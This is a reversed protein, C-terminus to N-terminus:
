TTKKRQKKRGRLVLVVYGIGFLILVGILIHEPKTPVIPHAYDYFTPATDEGKAAKIMEDIAAEAGESFEDRKWHPEIIERFIRSIKVDPLAGAIGPGTLIVAGHGSALFLVGNGQGNNGIDWKEAVKVAYAHVGEEGVSPVSLFVIQTGNLRELAQLKNTLEVARSIRLTGYYDNIHKYHDPIPFAAGTQREDNAADASAIVLCAGTLLALIHRVIM